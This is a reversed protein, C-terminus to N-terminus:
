LTTYTARVEESAMGKAAYHKLVHTLAGGGGGGGSLVIGNGGGGFGGIGGGGGTFSSGFTVEPHLQGLIEM